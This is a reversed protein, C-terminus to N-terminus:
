QSKARQWSEGWIYVGHRRVIVANTDPYMEMAVRMRKTLEREYLVNEM